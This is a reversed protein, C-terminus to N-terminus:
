DYRDVDKGLDLTYVWEIVDGDNLDYSGCGVDPTYKNVRYIWGSLAGYQMETYGGISSVYVSILGGSGTYSIKIKNARTVALLADFVTDGEKIVYKTPKLIYGEEPVNDAVGELIKCNISITVSSDGNSASDLNVNYYDNVSTFNFFLVGCILMIAGIAIPIINKLTARQRIRLYVCAFAFMLLIGGCAYFKYAKKGSTGIVEPEDGREESTYESSATYSSYSDSSESTDDSSESSEESSSSSEDESSSSTKDEASTSSTNEDPKDPVVPPDTVETSPRKEFSYFSAKGTAFREAATLARAAQETAIANRSAYTAMHCYSGDNLQYRRLGDYVSNGNKIFRSDTAPNIGLSTLAIIVQATSECTPMPPKGMGKYDGDGTQKESLFELAKDIASAVNSRNKYPALAQLVMATIDIDSVAGSLAWGNDSFQMELIDNILANRDNSKSEYKGCDLLILGFALGNIGTASFDCELTSNVFDNRIGAATYAIAVREKETNNTPTNESFFADLSAVYKEGNLSTDHRMLDIFMWDSVSNGAEPSLVSDIYGQLSGGESALLSFLKASQSSYANSPIAFGAAIVLTM